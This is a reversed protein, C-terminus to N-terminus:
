FSFTTEKKTVMTGKKTSVMLERNLIFAVIVRCLSASEFLLQVLIEYIM